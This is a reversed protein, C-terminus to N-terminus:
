FMKRQLFRSDSWGLPPLPFISQKESVEVYLRGSAARSLEVRM